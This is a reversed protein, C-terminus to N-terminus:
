KFPSKKLQFSPTTTKKSSSPVGINESPHKPRALFANKLLGSHLHNLIKSYIRQMEATTCLNTNKCFSILEKREETLKQKSNEDLSDIIGIMPVIASLPKDHLYLLTQIIKIDWILLNIFVKKPEQNFDLPESGWDSM